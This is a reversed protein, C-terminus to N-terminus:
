VYIPPQMWMQDTPQERRYTTLYIHSKMIVKIIKLDPLVPLKQSLTKQTENTKEKSLQGVIFHFAKLKLKIKFEM